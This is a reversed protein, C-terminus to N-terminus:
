NVVESINKPLSKPINISVSQEKSSQSGREKIIDSFITKAVEAYVVKRIEPDENSLLLDLSEVINAKNKNQYEYLKEIQYNKTAFYLGTYLVTIILFIFVGARVGWLKEWESMTFDLSSSCIPILFTVVFTSVSLGIIIFIWCQFVIRKGIWGNNKKDSADGEAKIKHAAAQTEFFDANKVEGLKRETKPIKLSRINQIEKEYDKKATELKKRVDEIAKQDIQIKELAEKEKSPSSMFKKMQLKLFIDDLSKAKNVFISNLSNIITKRSHDPNPSQITFNLLAMFNDHLNKRISDIHNVDLPFLSTKYDNFELQYIYDYFKEFDDKIEIFNLAGHDPNNFINDFDHQSLSDSYKDKVKSYDFKKKSM